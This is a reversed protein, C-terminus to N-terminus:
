RSCCVEQDYETERTPEDAVEECSSSHARSNDTTPENYSEYGEGRAIVYADKLYHISDNENLTVINVDNDIIKLTYGDRLQTAPAGFCTTFEDQYHNNIFFILFNKDIVNDVIAYTYLEHKNVFNLTLKDGNFQLETLIFEVSSTVYENFDDPVLPHIVRYYNTEDVLFDFEKDFDAADARSCRHIVEGNKVFCIPERTDITEKITQVIENALIPKVFFNYLQTQIIELYSYIWILKYSIEAFIDMMFNSM